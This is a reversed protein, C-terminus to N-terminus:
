VVERTIFELTRAVNAEISFQAGKALLRERIQTRRRVDTWRSLAAALASIDGPAVIEGEVGNEIIEAFGNATTTIVPLGAALAELCANSFPEYITPLAFVDAAALLRTMEARSQSGLFRVRESHPLGRTKGRGAVLLTAGPLENVAAIAHRLGKREWGSGAFLVAYDADGFGLAARAEARNASPESAPVGNYIVKIREAPTGFRAIIEDKVMQSNAIIRRAGGTFLAHELRVLQRHKASFSRFLPKWFPEFKARRELWSAHVGDGARFVDCEWVRELSLVFDCGSRKRWERVGDAFATPSSAKLITGVPRAMDAAFVDHPWEVDTVLFLEHGARGLEAMLRLLYAEAGGSGSYGRRVLGLKMCRAQLRACAARFSM